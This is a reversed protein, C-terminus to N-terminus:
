RTGLLVWGTLIICGLVATLLGSAFKHQGTLEDNIAMLPSLAWLVGTVGFAVATRWGLLSFVLGCVGYILAPADTPTSDGNTGLATGETQERTGAAPDNGPEASTSSPDALNGTTSTQDGTVAKPAPPSSHGCIVVATGIVVLLLVALALWTASNLYWPRPAVPLPPPAVVPM